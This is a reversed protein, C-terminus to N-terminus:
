TPYSLMAILQLHHMSIHYYFAQGNCIYLNMFLCYPLYAFYEILATSSKDTKHWRITFAHWPFHTNVIFPSHTGHSAKHQQLHICKDHFCIHAIFSLNTKWQPLYTGYFASVHWSPSHAMFPRYTHHFVFRHQLFHSIHRSLCIHWRLHIQAMTPSYSGYSVSKYRSLSNTGHFAAIHRSLYIHKEHSVFIHWSLHVHEM